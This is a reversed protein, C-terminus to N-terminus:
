DGAGSPTGTFWKTYYEPYRDGQTANVRGAAERFAQVDEPSLNAKGGGM